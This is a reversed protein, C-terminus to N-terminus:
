RFWSPSDSIKKWSFFFIGGNSRKGPVEVTEGPLNLFASNLTAEESLLLFDMDLLNSIWILFYTDKMPTHHPYFFRDRPDSIPMVLSGLSASCHDRTVSQRYYTFRDFNTRARDFLWMCM